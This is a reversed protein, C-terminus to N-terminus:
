RHIELPGFNIPATPLTVGNGKLYDTWGRLVAPIDGLFKYRTGVTEQVIVEVGARKGIGSSLVFVGSRDIWLLIGCALAIAFAKQGGARVLNKLWEVFTEM